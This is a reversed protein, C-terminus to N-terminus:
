AQKTVLDRAVGAPRVLRWAAWAVIALLVGERLVMAPWLAQEYMWAEIDPYGASGLYLAIFSAAFYAVDIGAFAVALAPPSALLALLVAIWLSYQVSYVKNVFFWWGIAILSAPLVLDGARGRGSAAAYWVLGMTAGLGALLLGASAANIQETSLRVGFREFLNWLNVERPRQQNFRFFYLWSNRFRLGGPTRQVAFPANIVGSALVVIGGIIAADRRRRKLLRDLVVLPVLVLPFFKTWVAIALLLAGWGIRDRRLLVLAAVTLLIAFMDWNLVVYLPLSPSLALLWLNAGEFSSGLWLILAGAAIMVAATALLYSLLDGHVFTILWIVVSLGVPYDPTYDFYPAPHRWLQDRFYLTSIDSYAGLFQFIYTSFAVPDPPGSYRATPAHLLVGLLMMAVGVLMPWIVSRARKM